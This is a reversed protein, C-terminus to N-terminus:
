PKDLMEKLNFVIEFTMAKPLPQPLQRSKAIARMLSDDFNKDGSKQIFDYSLFTGSKDYSVKVEAEPSGSAMYKSYSWNQQIYEQVFAVASVGAEDGTGDLMGVPANTVPSEIKASEAAAAARLRALTAQRAAEAEREKKAALLRELTKQRANDEAKSVAPKAQPKPQPKPAPKPAPKPKVAAPEPKPTPKPTPKAQPKPTPKPIPKPKAAPKPKPAPPIPKAAPLPKPKPAAKSASTAKGQVAEPRGAQPNLVPKNVLNVKYVPPKEAAQKPFLPTFYLIPVLLHLLFSVLLMQKFGPEFTAQLQQWRQKRSSEM